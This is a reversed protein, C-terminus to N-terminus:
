AIQEWCVHLPPLPLLCPPKCVYRQITGHLIMGQTRRVLLVRGLYESVLRQVQRHLRQPRRACRVVGDETAGRISRNNDCRAFRKIIWTVGDAGDPHRGPM